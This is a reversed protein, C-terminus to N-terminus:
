IGAVSEDILLDVVRQLATEEDAGGDLAERYARLQRDASTGRAVIDRAHEVEALCGLEVADEHVLDILEEVLEAYPVLAGIGFDMLSGEIGYRQARWINEEVLMYAYTRWRQNVRRRRYLMHLLSLYISAVTIGDDITTCIDAIRMELTPYRDSPRIDWWLKTADEILGAEVLVNVHRRYESWSNFAEPLGTRPLAKFVSM